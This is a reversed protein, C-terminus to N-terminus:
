NISYFRSLFLQQSKEKSNNIALILVYVSGFLGLCQLRGQEVEIPFGLWNPRLILFTVTLVAVKM